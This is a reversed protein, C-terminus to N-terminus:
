EQKGSKVSAYNKEKWNLDKKRQEKLHTTLCLPLSKISSHPCKMTMDMATLHAVAERQM